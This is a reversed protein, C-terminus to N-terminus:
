TSAGLIHCYQRSTLNQPLTKVLLATQPFSGVFRERLNCHEATPEWNNQKEQRGRETGFWGFGRSVGCESLIDRRNELACALVAM